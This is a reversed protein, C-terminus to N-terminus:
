YTDSLGHKMLNVLSNATTKTKNDSITRNLYAEWGPKDLSLLVYPTTFIVGYEFPALVPPLIRVFRLEGQRGGLNM